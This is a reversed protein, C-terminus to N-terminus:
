GCYGLSVASHVNIPQGLALAQVTPIIFGMDFALAMEYRRDMVLDQGSPLGYVKMVGSALIEIAKLANFLQETM